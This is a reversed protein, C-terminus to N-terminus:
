YSGEGHNRFKLSRSLTNAARCSLCCVLPSSFWFIWNNKIAKGYKWRTAASLQTPAHRRRRSLPAVRSVSKRLREVKPGDKPFSRLSTKTKNLENKAMLGISPPTGFITVCYQTLPRCELYELFM